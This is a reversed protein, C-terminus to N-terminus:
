RAAERFARSRRSSSDLWLYLDARFLMLWNVLTTVLITGGLALFGLEGSFFMEPPAFGLAARLLVGAPLLAPLLPESTALMLAFYGLGAGFAPILPVLWTIIWEIWNHRMFDAAHSLADLGQRRSLYVAEALANLVVAIVLQMILQLNGLSTGRSLTQLVFGILFLIFAANLIDSFLSYDLSALDKFRLKQGHATDSLWGYYLSLLTIQIMGLVFGGAMGLGQLLNALLSHLLFLALSAPIIPWSRIMGENAKRAARLYAACTAQVAAQPGVSTM